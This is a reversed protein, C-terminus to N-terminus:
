SFEIKWGFHMLTHTHTKKKLMGGSFKGVIIKMNIAKFKCFTAKLQFPFSKKPISISVAMSLIQSIRIQKIFIITTINFLYILLHFPVDKSIVRTDFVQRYKMFCPMLSARRFAEFPLSSFPNRISYGISSVIDLINSRM